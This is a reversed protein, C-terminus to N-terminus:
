ATPTAAAERAAMRALGAVRAKADTLRHEYRRIPNEYFAGSGARRSEIFFLDDVGRVRWETQDITTVYARPTTADKTWKVPAATETM